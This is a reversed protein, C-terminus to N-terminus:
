HKRSLTPHSTELIILFCIKELLQIQINSLSKNNFKEIQDMCFKYLPDQSNKPFLDGTALYERLKDYKKHWIRDEFLYGIDHLQQLRREDLKNSKYDSGIKFM